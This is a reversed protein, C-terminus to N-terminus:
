RINLVANKVIVAEVVADRGAQRRYRGLRHTKAVEPGSDTMAKDYDTPRMWIAGSRTIANGQM